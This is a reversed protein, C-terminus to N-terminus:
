RRLAREILNSVMLRTVLEGVARCRSGVPKGTFRGTKQSVVPHYAPAAVDARVRDKRDVVQALLGCCSERSRGSCEGERRRRTRTSGM